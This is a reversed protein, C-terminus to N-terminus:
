LVLSEDIVTLMQSVDTCKGSKMYMICYWQEGSHLERNFCEAEVFPVGHCIQIVEVNPGIGAALDLAGNYVM